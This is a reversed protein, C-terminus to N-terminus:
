FRIDDDFFLGNRQRCQALVPNNAWFRIDDDFFHGNQQRCQVLVPNNAWFRIDDDFFAGKRQRRHNKSTAPRVNVHCTICNRWM